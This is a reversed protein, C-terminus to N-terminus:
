GEFLRGMGSVAWRLPMYGACSTLGRREAWRLPMYGACSTLGRREAWRLPMCDAMEWECSKRSKVNVAQGSSDDESVARRTHILLPLM